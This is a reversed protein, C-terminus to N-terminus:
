YSLILKKIKAFIRCVTPRSLECLEAIKKQNLKTTKQKEIVVLSSRNLLLQFVKKEKSTCLNVFVYDIIENIEANDEPRNNSAVLFVDSCSTESANDIDEFSIFDKDIVYSKYKVKTKSMKAHVYIKRFNVVSKLCYNLLHQKDYDNHQLFQFYAEIFVLTCQSLMDDYDAYYNSSLFRSQKMLFAKYDTLIEELRKKGVDKIEQEQAQKAM